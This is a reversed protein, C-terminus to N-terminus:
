DVYVFAASNIMTHCLSALARQAAKAEGQKQSAFESLWQKKLVDYASRSAQLEQADPQRSLATMFVDQIQQNPNDSQGAIRSAFHDALEHVMANNM